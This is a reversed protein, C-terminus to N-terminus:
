VRSRNRVYRVSGHETSCLEGRVREVRVLKQDREQPGVPAVLVGRDPLADLWARPVELVAFTCVVRTADGWMPSSVVADAQHVRVNALGELLGRARTALTEDIEFTAVRGDEGVIDSALAAGYGSGSGLEVVRDGRALELLRFSLMYAHPASITALGVDDLALPVDEFSRAEDGPRVFRARDVHELADLHV